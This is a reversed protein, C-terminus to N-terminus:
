DKKQWYAKFTFIIGLVLLVIQLGIVIFNNVFGQQVPGPFFMRSLGGFIAFWGILTIMIPWKFVWYNHSRIIALGALLWLSGALYTQTVAVTDWIRPNLMESITMAILFPGLLKAIHKSNSM